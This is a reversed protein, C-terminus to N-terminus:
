EGEAPFDRTRVNPDQLTLFLGDILNRICVRRVPHSLTYGGKERDSREKESWVADDCRSGSRIAILFLPIPGSGRAGEARESFRRKVHAWTGSM